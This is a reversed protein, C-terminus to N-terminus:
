IEDGQVEETDDFAQMFEEVRIRIVKHLAAREYRLVLNEDLFDM